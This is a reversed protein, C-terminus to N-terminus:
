SLLMCTAGGACASTRPTDPIISVYLFMGPVKLLVLRQSAFAQAAVWRGDYTEVTLGRVDYGGEIAVLKAFDLRSLALLM